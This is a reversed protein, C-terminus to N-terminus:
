QTKELDERMNKLADNLFAEKVAEREEDTYATMLEATVNSCMEISEQFLKSAIFARQALTAGSFGEEDILFSMYALKVAVEFDQVRQNDKTPEWLMTEEIPKAGNVIEEKVTLFLDMAMGKLEPIDCEEILEHAERVEDKLEQTVPLANLRSVQNTTM